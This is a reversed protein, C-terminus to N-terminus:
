CELGNLLEASEVRLADVVLDFESAPDELFVLLQILMHSVEGVYHLSCGTLSYEYSVLDRLLEQLIQLSGRFLFQM